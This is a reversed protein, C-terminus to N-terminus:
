ARHRSTSASGKLHREPCYDYEPSFYGECKPQIAFKAIEHPVRLTAYEAATELGGTSPPAYPEKAVNTTTTLPNDDGDETESTIKGHIATYTHFEASRNGPRRHSSVRIDFTNLVYLLGEAESHTEKSALLINLNEVRRVATDILLLERYVINRLEPALNFFRFSWARDMQRLKNALQHRNMFRNYRRRRSRIFTRLEKLTCTSYDVGGLSPQTPPMTRATFNNSTSASIGISLPSM